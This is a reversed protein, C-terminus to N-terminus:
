IKICIMVVQKLISWQIDLSVMNSVDDDQHAGYFYGTTGDTVVM